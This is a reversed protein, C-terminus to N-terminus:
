TEFYFRVPDSWTDGCKVAITHEGASLPVIEKFFPTVPEGRVNTRSLVQRVTMARPVDAPRQGTAVLVWRGSFDPKDQVFTATTALLLLLMRM